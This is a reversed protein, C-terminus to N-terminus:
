KGAVTSTATINHRRMGTQGTRALRQAILKKLQAVDRDSFWRTGRSDRRPKFLGHRELRTLTSPAAGCLVAAEVLTYRLEDSEM